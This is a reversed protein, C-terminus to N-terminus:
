SAENDRRTLHEAGVDRPFASLVLRSCLISAIIPLGSPGALPVLMMGPQAWVGLNRPRMTFVVELAWTEDVRHARFQPGPELTSDDDSLGAPM